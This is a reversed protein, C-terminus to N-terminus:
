IIVYPQCSDQRQGSSKDWSLFVQIANDQIDTASSHDKSSTLPRSVLIDSPIPCWRAVSGARKRMNIPLTLRPCLRIPRAAVSPMRILPCVVFFVIGCKPPASRCGQPCQGGRGGDSLAWLPRLTCRVVSGVNGRPSLM